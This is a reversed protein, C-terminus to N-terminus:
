PVRFLEIRTQKIKANGGESTSRYDIGFTHSANTLAAVTFFTKFLFEDEFKPAYSSESTPVGDVTARVIVPKDGSDNTVSATASIKYNGVPLTPTVMTLKNQFSTSSTSSETLDETYQYEQGFVTVPIGSDEVIKGSTDNFIVINNPSSSGPGRVDGVTSSTLGTGGKVLKGTTSDFVVLEEDISSVPGITNGILGYDIGTESGKGKEWEGSANSRMVSVNIKTITGNDVTRFFDDKTFGEVKAVLGVGRVTLLQGVHSQTEFFGNNLRTNKIQLIEGQTFTDSGDTVVTPNSVGAVGFNFQGLTVTDATATGLYNVAMGSEIGVAPTYENNLCIFPEAINSTDDGKAVSVDHLFQIENVIYPIGGPNGLLGINDAEILVSGLQGADQRLPTNGVFFLGNAPDDPDSSNMNVTNDGVRFDFGGVGDTVAKKSPLYKTVVGSVIDTLTFRVNTMASQTRFTFADTQNSFTALIPLILPNTTILTSDDPQAAITQKSDAQRFIIDETGQDGMVALVAVSNIDGVMQHFFLSSTAESVTLTDGINISGSPVSISEDFTWLNSSDVTAGAFVLTNDNEDFKLVQGNIVDADITAVPNGDLLLEETVNLKTLQTFGAEGNVIAM